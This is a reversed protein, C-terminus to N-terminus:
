RRARLAVRQAQPAAIRAAALGAPILAFAAIWFLTM